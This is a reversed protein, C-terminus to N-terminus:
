SRARSHLYLGITAATYLAALVVHQVRGSWTRPSRAPMLAPDKAITSSTFFAQRLRNALVAYLSDCVIAVSLFSVSLISIQWLYDYEVAAFQPLFATFFLITKPNSLSVLFGRSFSWASSEVAIASAAGGPTKWIQRLHKLALYGLYLLGFWKLISLGDQLVQIVSYSAIAAILLQIAMATSTGAVTLLGRKKGYQLSTSVIVLVNPGPLVIVTLATLLFTAYLISDM